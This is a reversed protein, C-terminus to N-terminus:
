NFQINVEQNQLQQLMQDAQGFLEKAKQNKPDLSLVNQMAAKADSPMGKALYALGLGFHADVNSWDKSIASMFETVANDIRRLHMHLNGTNSHLRSAKAPDKVHRLGEQFFSIATEMDGKRSFAVGTIGYLEADDNKVKIAEILLAIANDYQELEFYIRGLKEKCEVTPDTRCARDFYGVSTKQDGLIWYSSGLGAYVDSLYSKEEGELGGAENRRELLSLASQFLSISDQYNEKLYAAHALHIVVKVDRPDEEWAKRLVHEASSVQGQKLQVIALSIRTERNEPELALARGWAYQAGQMNGEQFYVAGLANYCSALHPKHLDPDSKSISASLLKVAKQADGTRHYLVGLDYLVRVDEPDLELLKELSAVANKDNGLKLYFNALAYYFEVPQETATMQSYADLLQQIVSSDLASTGLKFDMERTASIIKRSEGDFTTPIQRDAYPAMITDEKSTHMAGFLHAMEHTLITEEQIRFLPHNPYRLLMYGSFPRARGLVHLDRVDLSDSIDSLKSLGIMIDVNQKTLSYTAMLEDLLQRTGLGPQSPEWNWFVVDKLKIRFEREFITSTYRLRKKFTAKWDPSTMFEPTVAVGVILERMAQPKALVAPVQSLLLPPVLSLSLVSQFFCQRLFATMEPRDM